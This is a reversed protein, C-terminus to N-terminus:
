KNQTIDMLMLVVYYQSRVEFDLRVCKGDYFWQLVEQRSMPAAVMKAALYSM